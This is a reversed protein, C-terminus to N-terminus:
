VFLMILFYFFNSFKYILVLLEDSIGISNKLLVYFLNFFRPDDFRQSIRTTARILDDYNVGKYGKLYSNPCIFLSHNCYNYIKSSRKKDNLTDNRLPTISIIRDNFLGIQNAEIISNRPIM